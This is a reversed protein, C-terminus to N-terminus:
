DAAHRHEWEAARLRRLYEDSDSMDERNAWMGFFPQSLDIDTHEPAATRAEARAVLVNVIDAIEEQQEPPLRSARRIAEALNM